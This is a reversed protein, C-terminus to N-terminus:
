RFTIKYIDKDGSGSDERFVSYYGTKGTGSPMFFFDNDPTNIPYGINVPAEWSNDNRYETKFIDYGGINKHGQSSFFLTKGKNILFPRDENYPTNVAPGLNVAPGWDGNVKRSIYLDLGGFGGPRDSAFIIQQGDETVFGHSEWYRTNIYKNLKITKTWSKGDFKSFYIDSNYNDDSSLYLTNGNDALCSIYMDGDSQLQPNINVPMSWKGGALDSVMIADYFKLSVMYAFRKGDASIVPNFNPKDDNITEGMNEESFAVPSAILEKANDCAQIHQKIFDINEKDDPLLTGLYRQYASKAKDFQYNVMYANALEYLADYPASLQSITGEKHKASMNGAATELYAISLNKSGNINLYCVGIRFALNANNGADSYLKLYLPLADAYEEHLFFYEADLFIEQQNKAEQASLLCTFMLFILAPFAKGSM